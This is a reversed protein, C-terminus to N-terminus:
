QHVTAVDAVRGKGHCILCTESKGLATSRPEYVSGGNSRIHAKALDTDHCSFCASAIPSNVLTEGDVGTTAPTVVGTVSVSPPLGLVASAAVEPQPNLGYTGAAVTAGASATTYLPTITSGGTNGFNVTDPLHCQECKKLVGPYEVSGAPATSPFDWAAWTFMVSRKSGGHIGHIYTNTAGPWGYNTTASKGDNIENPTHCIACATPDNREGNHFEPQTGLQEHCSNCKATAVIVRRGTYGTAVLTKLMPKIKVTGLGSIVQEFRGVILGTAMSSTPKAPIAIPATAPGTIAVTFYGNADTTTIDGAGVTGTIGTFTGAKAAGSTLLNSLSTGVRGNFDAPAAIGDQAVAFAVYISPGRTLGTIAQFSSPVSDVTTTHLTTVPSGNLNIRFTVVPQGSGNIILTKLDYSVTNVGSKVVPNNLTPVTSRHYLAINAPTHCSSCMSDPQAGGVHGSQTTGPPNLNAIDFQKDTLTVGAGTAFDIGDHCAGCALRSPLNKWNDGDKTQKTNVSGDSKTASGDHCKTCDSPLQPFRKENFLGAADNNFNYGQKVLGESMHMKHILSPYNGVARGYLIAQAPRVVANTGTQVTFTVGDANMPADGNNVALNDFTFKIQDTHCTVCLRPNNRGVQWGNVNTGAHGIGKGAHCDSCSDKVVIDRTTSVAGGNPVFDYGANFTYVLPVAPTVTVADPTNSGTGPMNGAIIIGLRHTLSPAYTLDGMDAVQSLGDASNTFAAKYAAAKTVDRYFTYQYTGDGNDVLTGERDQQPFAGVMAKSDITVVNTTASTATAAPKTMLYTVWKSPGGTVPVLKALTFAFLYNIHPSGPIAANAASQSQGGMGVLPNGNVDAVKFKVVPPGNNIAVSISAPDITPQLAQFEAASLNTVNILPGTSTGPAGPAGDSAGGCSALASIMVALLGLRILTSKMKKGESEFNCNM